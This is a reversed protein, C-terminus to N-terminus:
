AFALTSRKRVAGNKTRLSALVDSMTGIRDAMGLQVAKDASIMRGKGFSAKVTEPSVKRGAAVAAVFKGMEEDAQSRLYDAAEESLPSFPSFEAKYPSDTSVISTHKVGEKDLLGSLDFHEGRVGISGAEASPAMWIQSAQSGIYYAASALMSDALCIVPKQQAVARVVDASEPTGAVTGGPSHADIVVAGVDANAGAAQMRGRFTAHGGKPTLAGQMPVIAISKPTEVAQRDGRSAGLRQFDVAFLKEGSSILAALEVGAPTALLAQLDPGM